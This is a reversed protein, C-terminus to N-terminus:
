RPLSQLLRCRFVLMSKVSRTLLQQKSALVRYGAYKFEFDLRRALLAPANTALMPEIMAPQMVALQVFVERQHALASKCAGWGAKEEQM